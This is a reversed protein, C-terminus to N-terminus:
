NRPWRKVYFRTCIDKDPVSNNVNKRFELHRAGGDQIKLNHSNSWEPTNIYHPIQARYWIPNFYRCQGSLDVCKHKLRENLSTVRTVEPKMEIKPWTNMEAHGHHMKGYFKTYIDKNLRSNNVNKGFNFIAAAAMKSKNPLWPVVWLPVSTTRVGHLFKTMIPQTTKLYSILTQIKQRELKFTRNV